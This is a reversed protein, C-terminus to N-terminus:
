VVVARDKESSSAYGGTPPNDYEVVGYDGVLVGRIRDVTEGAFFGESGAMYEFGKTDGEYESPNHDSPYVPVPWILSLGYYMGAGMFFSLLFGLKYMNKSAQNVAAPDLSGAIGHVTFAVGAVWAAVARPNWGHRYAYPTGAAKTYLSPVHLNGRRLLWYDVVMIGCIPMLFVTYSGLFTLFTSASSIIKWPVCLPALVACLVQGRVITMYRPLLGSGDAGVPLSNSGANTAITALVMGFAAFFIGARAGPSWFETLIADYLDWVNWFSKGLIGTTASTTACSVFMVILKSVLIGTSQSWTAQSFSTAYRAVDPQNILIPCLAGMVSNIAQIMPWILAFGELRVQKDYSFSGISGGNAHVAWGLVGFLAVTTYVAKVVFLHRLLTPHLFMVPFQVVWYVFFALLNKSSIGASAPLTNPIRDWAGGFVARLCVATIMGGYFTQTAFYIVAVSARVVVFLKAGGIGASARAFVPFGVHYRTAGRSNLVVIASLILSGVAAAIMGHYWQLGIAVLTAGLNYSGSSFTQTLYYSFFHLATWTRREPPTPLLDENFYAAGEPPADPALLAKKFEEKSSFATKVKRMATAM